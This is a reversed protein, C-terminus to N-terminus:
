NTRRYGNNKKKKLAIEQNCLKIYHEIWYRRNIVYNERNYPLEKIEGQM